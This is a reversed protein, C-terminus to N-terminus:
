RPLAALAAPAAIASISMSAISRASDLSGSAARRRTSVTADLGSEPGIVTGARTGMPPVPMSAWGNASPASATPVHGRGNNTSYAYWTGNVQIVDPDPFDEGIVEAPFVAATTRQEVATAPSIATALATLVVLAALIRRRM